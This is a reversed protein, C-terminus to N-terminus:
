QVAVQADANIVPPAILQSIFPTLLRFQTAGTGSTLHVRLLDNAHCNVASRTNGNGDSCTVTSPSGGSTQIGSGVLRGKAIELTCTFRNQSAVPVSAPCGYQWQEVAGFRAAERAAQSFSNTVFVYRGIDILGFLLLLFVPFVLAFEVLAQGRHARSRTLWKM